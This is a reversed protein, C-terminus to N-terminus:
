SLEGLYTVNSPLDDLIHIAYTAAHDGKSYGGVIVLKEDPLSRFTEIQLELRKAPYIRNVSLWFNGYEKCYYRRVDVPPYIVSSERGLFRQVRDAVTNSISVVNTVEELAREYIPRHITAWSRFLMRSLPRMSQQIDKYSDYFARVPTYCYWFNPQHKKASHVSWDGTFIFFDYEDRFEAMSFLVSASIQKLPSIKVTKSLSHVPVTPKLISLADTDTTIIDAKLINAISLVTKEGGGVAGFYDHFICTKL